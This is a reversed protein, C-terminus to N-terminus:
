WRDLPTTSTGSSYTMGKPLAIEIHKKAYGAENSSIERNELITGLTMGKEGMSHPRDSIKTEIELPELELQDAGSGKLANWVGQSWEEVDGYVDGGVDVRGFPAFRFAGLHDMISDILKPTRQYTGVWDKNGLGLVTYRVGKLRETDGVAAELWSVFKKADDTPRGEYSSTIIIVPRRDYPLKETASDLTEIQEAGFGFSPAAARIDEAFLKCTGSNSGYLITIPTLHSILQFSPVAQPAMAEMQRLPASSASVRSAGVSEAQRGTRAKVKLLLGDPKQTVTQSIKLEYFPDALEVQYRQLILAMATLAEQMAFDRGICARLGGGFPRWSNPPLSEFGGDLMREPRFAAADDGWVTPDRHLGILNLIFIDSSSYPYIGGIVGRGSKPQMAVQAAPPHVRMSEKLVADIYKLKPLHQIRIQDEGIVTDVETIAKQM